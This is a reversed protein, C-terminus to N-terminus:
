RRVRQCRDSGIGIGGRRGEDVPHSLEAQEILCRKGGCGSQSGCRQGFRLITEADQCTRRSMGPLTYTV